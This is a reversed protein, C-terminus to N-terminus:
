ILIEFRFHGCICFCAADSLSFTERASIVVVLADQVLGFPFPEGVLEVETFEDEDAARSERRRRRRAMLDKM